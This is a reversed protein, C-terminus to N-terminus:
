CCRLLALRRPRRLLRCRQDRRGIKPARSSTMEPHQSDHMAGRQIFFVDNECMSSMMKVCLTSM